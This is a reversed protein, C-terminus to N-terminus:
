VCASPWRPPPPVEGTCDLGQLPGAPSPAPLACVPGLTAYQVGILINRFAVAVWMGGASLSSRLSAALRLLVNQKRHPGVAPRLGLQGERRRSRSGLASCPPLPSDARLRDGPASCHSSGLLPHQVQGQPHGAIDGWSVCSPASLSLDASRLSLSSGAGPRGSAGPHAPAECRSQM